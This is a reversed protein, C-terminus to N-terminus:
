NKLLMPNFENFSPFFDSLFYFRELFDLSDEKTALYGFSVFSFFIIVFFFFVLYFLM